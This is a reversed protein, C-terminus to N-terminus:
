EVIEDSIVDDILHETKRKKFWRFLFIIAGIMSVTITPAIYDEYKYPNFIPLMNRPPVIQEEMNGAHDYARIVIRSRLSQDQLIYPSKAISLKEKIRTGFRFGFSNPDEELIEYHEVGSQKDITDFVLMYPSDKVTNDQIIMPTFIEPAFTDNKVVDLWENKLNSSTGSTITMGSAILEAKSGLGDNLIVETDPTFIVNAVSGVNEGKFQFVIKGIINTNGPDGSTHGCYGGPIGSTFNVVGKDHDILEDLWLTFISEGRSLTNVRLLNPPYSVSVAAANVCEDKAVDIRINAVFIDGVGVVKTAPDIRLTAASSVFPMLFLTAYFLKKM